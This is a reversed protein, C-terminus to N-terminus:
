NDLSRTFSSGNNQILRFHNECLIRNYCIVFRDGVCFRFQCQQCAFCGLHFALSSDAMTIKMALEFALITNCCLSCMGPQGFVRLYDNKCFPLRMKFYCWRSVESLRVNCCTCRLCDEHWSKGDAQLLFAERIEMECRNCRTMALSQDRDNEFSYFHFAQIFSSASLFALAFYWNTCAVTVAVLMPGMVRSLANLSRFTGLVLGRHNSGALKSALGNFSPTFVASTFAFLSLSAYFMLHSQYFLFAIALALGLSSMSAFILSGENTAKFRRMIFGQLMIMLLGLFLLMKGQEPNTYEFWQKTIFAINTEYGSFLLMFVFYSVALRQLHHKVTWIDQDRDARASVQLKLRRKERSWSIQVAADSRAHFESKTKSKFESFALFSSPNLSRYCSVDSSARTNTEELCFFLVVLGLLTVSACLFGVKWCIIDLTGTKLHFMHGFAVSISPGFLFGLSYAIGVLMMDNDGQNQSDGVTATLLAINCRSVGQLARFVIFLILNQGFFMLILYCVFSLIAMALSVLRRGYKDSYAGVSPSFLFQTLSLVSSLFAGLLMESSSSLYNYRTISKALFQVM